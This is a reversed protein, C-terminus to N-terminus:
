GRCLWGGLALDREATDMDISELRCDRRPELPNLRRVKRGVAFSWSRM